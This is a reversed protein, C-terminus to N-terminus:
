RARANVKPSRRCVEIFRGVIVRLYEESEGCFFLDDAYLLGTLRWERGEDRFRVGRRGMEMKVEMVADMYINLLWPSIICVQREGSDIM